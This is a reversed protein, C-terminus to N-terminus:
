KSLKGCSLPHLRAVLEAVIPEAQPDQGILNDAAEKLRALWPGFDGAQRIGLEMFADRTEKQPGGQYHIHAWFFLRGINDFQPSSELCPLVMDCIQEVLEGLKTPDLWSVHPEILAEHPEGNKKEDRGQNRRRRLVNEEEEDTTLPHFALRALLALINGRQTNLHSDIPSPM